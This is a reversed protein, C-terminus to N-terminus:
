VRPRRDGRAHRVRLLRGSRRYYKRLTDRSALLFLGALIGYVCGRWGLAYGGAAYAWLLAIVMNAYFKYYRYHIDILFEFAAANRELRAFDWRPPTIGTRHHLWDITLWRVASVIMGAAIAQTTESLFTSITPEVGMLPTGWAAQGLGEFPLGRLATFGPLVYAILIGFSPVSGHQTTM